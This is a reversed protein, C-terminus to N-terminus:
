KPIEKLKAHLLYRLNSSQNRYEHSCTSLTIIRDNESLEVETKFDSEAQIMDLYQMYNAHDVFEFQYSDSSSTTTYISFVECEYYKDETYLYIYPHTYFFDEDKMKEIHTFMTDHWMNHGYIFTNQDKFTSDQRYDMFIAGAYNAEREFSHDLYYDNDMGKVIPYNINTDPLYIWAVIDENIKKLAEFDVSTTIKHEQIEEQSPLKATSILTEKEQIEEHNDIKILIIQSLSFIFVGLAVLFLLRYIIKKM